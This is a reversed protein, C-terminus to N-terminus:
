DGLLAAKLMPNIQGPATGAPRDAWHSLTQQFAGNTKISADASEVVLDRWPGFVPDDPRSRERLYDRWRKLLKPKLYPM